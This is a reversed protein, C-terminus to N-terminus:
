LACFEFKSPMKKFFVSIVKHSSDRSLNSILSFYEAFKPTWTFSNGLNQSRKLIKERIETHSLAWPGGIKSTDM